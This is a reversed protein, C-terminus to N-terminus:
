RSAADASGFAMWSFDLLRLVTSQWGPQDYMYCMAVLARLLDEAPHRGSRAPRLPATLLTGVAGTLRDFSYAYLEPPGQTALRSGCCGKRPRSSSPRRRSGVGCPMSRPREGKLQEALESLQDVEHRYVAEFLAERTPFTATSRASASARAGPWPKWAPEPGGASFVATLPKWCSARPQAGRGRAAAVPGRRFLM